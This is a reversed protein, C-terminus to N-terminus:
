TEGEGHVIMRNWSRRAEAETKGSVSRGCRKCFLTMDNVGYIRGRSKCGCICVKLREHSSVPMLKYGMKEATSRLEEITMGEKGRM